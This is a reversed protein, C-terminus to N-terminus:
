WNSNVWEDKGGHAGGEKVVQMGWSDWACLRAPPVRECCAAGSDEEHENEAHRPNQFHEVVDGCGFFGRERNLGDGIVNGEASENAIQM